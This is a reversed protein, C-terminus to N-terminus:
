RRSIPCTSLGRSKFMSTWRDYESLAIKNDRTILAFETIMRGASATRPFKRLSFRAEERLTALSDKLTAINEQSLESTNILPLKALQNTLSVGKLTATYFLVAFICISGAIAIGSFWQFLRKQSGFLGYILSALPWVLIMTIIWIIKSKNSRSQSIACHILAWLPYIFLFFLIVTPVLLILSCWIIRM